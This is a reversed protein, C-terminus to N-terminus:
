RSPEEGDAAALRLLLRRLLALSVAASHNLRASDAVRQQVRSRQPVRARPGCFAGLSTGSSDGVSIAGSSGLNRSALRSASDGSRERYRRVDGCM